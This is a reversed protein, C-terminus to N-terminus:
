DDLMSGEIHSKDGEIKDLINDLALLYRNNAEDNDHPWEAKGTKCWQPFAKACNRFYDYDTEGLRALARDVVKNEAHCEKTYVVYVVYINIWGSFLLNKVEQVIERCALTVNSM